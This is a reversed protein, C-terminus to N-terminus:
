APRRARRHVAPASRINARRGLPLARPYGREEAPQCRFSKAKLAFVAGQQGASPALRHLGRPRGGSTNSAHLNCGEYHSLKTRVVIEIAEKSFRWVSSDHFCLIEFGEGGARAGPRDYNSPRTWEVAPADTLAFIVSGTSISFGRFRVRERLAHRTVILRLHRVGFPHATWDVGHQFSTAPTISSAGPGVAAPKWNDCEGDRV